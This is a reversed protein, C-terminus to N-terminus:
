IFRKFVNVRVGFRFRVKVRVGVRFRIRLWLCWVVINMHIRTLLAYVTNLTM